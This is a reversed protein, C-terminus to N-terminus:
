CRTRQAGDARNGLGRLRQMHQPSALAQHTAHLGILTTRIGAELVVKFAAHPDVYFNFEAAPTINGLGMAGGMVVIRAIGADIDPALRLAM